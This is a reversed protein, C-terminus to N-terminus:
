FPCFASVTNSQNIVPFKAGLWQNQFLSRFRLSTLCPALKVGIDDDTLIVSKEQVFHKPM